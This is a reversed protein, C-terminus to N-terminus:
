DEAVGVIKASDVWLQKAGAEDKAQPHYGDEGLAAAGGQAAVEDSVQGYEVCNSLWLVGRGEFERGVAALVQTAAGQEANKLYQQVKPDKWSEASKQDVHRMLNTM